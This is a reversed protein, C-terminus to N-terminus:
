RHVTAWVDEPVNLLISNRDVVKYQGIFRDYIVYHEEVPTMTDVEIVGCECDITTTFSTFTFVAAEKCHPCTRIEQSM